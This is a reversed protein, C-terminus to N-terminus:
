RESSLAPRGARMSGLRAKGDIADLMQGRIQDDPLGTAFEHMDRWADHPGENPIFLYRELDQEPDPRRDDHPWDELAAAPRADGTQM